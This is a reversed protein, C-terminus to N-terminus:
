CVSSRVAPRGSPPNPISVHPIADAVTTAPKELCMEDYERMREDSIIGARHMAKADQYLVKSIESQYKKL